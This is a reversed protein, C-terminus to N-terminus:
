LSKKSSASAEFKLGGGLGDIAAALATAVTAATANVAIAVAVGTRGAIAPDVGAGGVNFWAYHKVADSAEFGIWTSNLSSSVDAVCTIGTQEEIEWSVNIPEIRINGTGTDCSM